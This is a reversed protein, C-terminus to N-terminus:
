KVWAISSVSAGPPLTSLYRAARRGRPSIAYNVKGVKADLRTVWALGEEVLLGFSRDGM